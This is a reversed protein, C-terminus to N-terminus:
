ANTVYNGRLVDLLLRMWNEIGIERALNANARIWAKQSVTAEHPEAFLPDCTLVYMPSVVVRRIQDETFPAM